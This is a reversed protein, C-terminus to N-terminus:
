QLPWTPSDDIPDAEDTWKALTKATKCLIRLIRSPDNEGVNGLDKIALGLEHVKIDCFQAVLPVLSGKISARLWEISREAMQLFARGQNLNPTLDTLVIRLAQRIVPKVDGEFINDKNHRGVVRAYFLGGFIIPLNVNITHIGQYHKWFGETQVIELGNEYDFAEFHSSAAELPRNIRDTRTSDAIATVFSNLRAARREELLQEVTFAAPLIARRLTESDIQNKISFPDPNAMTIILEPNRRLSETFIDQVYRDRMSYGIVLCQRVEALRQRFKAQAFALPEYHTPKGTVPYAILPELKEGFLSERCESGVNLVTKYFMGRNSRYSLVSGHLKFLRIDVNENGLREPEWYQGYGDELRINYINCFVDVVNDYNVSFIDLPKGRTLLDKIPLLYKLDTTPSIICKTRILEEFKRKVSSRTKSDFGKFAGTKSWIATEVVSEVEPSLKGLIDLLEEPDPTYENPAMGHAEAIIGRVIQYYNWHDGDIKRIHTEFESLFELMIPVNAPKSFGAGIFLIIDRSPNAM